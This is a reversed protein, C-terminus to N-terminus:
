KRLIMKIVERTRSTDIETNSDVLEIVETILRYLEEVSEQSGAKLIGEMRSQLNGPKLKMREIFYETHKLKGHYYLRNLGCLVCIIDKVSQVLIEYLYIVDNREIVMKDLVWKPHFRLHEKIMINSLKDPYCSAKAKWEKVWKDGYLSLSNLFGFVLLQKIMDNNSNELMENILNETFSIYGHAFDCRTGEIYEYVAFGNETDGGYFDGGSIKANEVINNFEDDSLKNDYLILTDIDSFEDAYGLAASGTVVIAKVNPNGTFRSANKKALQLLSESTQNMTNM